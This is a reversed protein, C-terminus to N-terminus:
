GLTAWLHVLAYARWPRWREALATASAPDGAHGLRELAHRVGLDSPMFADRDGLARLAVYAVTWPGIGALALLRRELDVREADPTIAVEGDALARCLGVLARKRANPMALRAPDIAAIAAPTPFLHTVAGAPQALPEGVDAVLRGALTRAGVVSVQQGLVARVALEGGDVTGPVRRGPAARVVPGLLPDGGLVDLVGTPDVDVDTVRRALAVAHDADREDDLRLACAVHGDAPTLSLVGTGHPLRLSRTYTTGDWHEAGPVARRGIFGFVSDADYPERYALHVTLDVSSRAGPM